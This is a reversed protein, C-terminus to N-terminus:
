FLQEFAEEVMDLITDMANALLSKVEDGIVEQLATAIPDDGYEPALGPEVQNEEVGQCSRIADNSKDTTLITEWASKSTVDMKRKM